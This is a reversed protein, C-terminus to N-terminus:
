IQILASDTAQGTVTNYAYLIAYQGSQVGANNLAVTGSQYSPIMEKVVVIELTTADYVIADYVVSPNVETTQPNFTLVTGTGPTTTASIITPTPYLSGKSIILNEPNIILQNSADFGFLDGNLKTFLNRPYMGVASESLGREIYKAFRKGTKSLLALLLRANQQAQTRPNAVSLPRSRMVNKGLITTFIANAFANKSRGTVPNQVIAM